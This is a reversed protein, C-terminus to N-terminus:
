NQLLHQVPSELVYMRGIDFGLHNLTEVFLKKRVEIIREIMFNESVIDIVRIMM